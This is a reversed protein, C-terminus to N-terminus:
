NLHQLHHAPGLSPLEITFTTGVGLISNVGIKGNLKDLAAKVIYLGLGSGKSDVSARFFMKFIKQRFEDAVGIGNDSFRIVAMSPQVDVYIQIFSDKRKDRYSVANAIINNFIISLRSDDSYFKHQNNIHIVSRVKDADDMYKLSEISNEIVEQFNIEKPLIELRSNRSHQVIDTIFHDLKDISKEILNLYKETNSQDADMKVMNLLGKVSRLPARLDHSASYVFRDLESNIKTLEENQETLQEEAEKVKTVDRALMTLGTVKGDDRIPYIKLEYMKKEGNVLYTDLYKMVKGTLGTEYRMKWLDRVAPKDDPLLELVCKGKVPKINLIAQYKQFFERNFDILECKENVLWVGDDLSNLISRLNAENSITRQQWAKKVTIDRSFVSIYSTEQHLIKKYYIEWYYTRGQLDFSDEFQLSEGKIVQECREKWTQALQPNVKEIAEIISSELKLDIGYTESFIWFFAPNISVVRMDLDLMLINAEANEIVSFFTSQWNIQEVHSIMRSLKANSKDSLINKTKLLESEFDHM